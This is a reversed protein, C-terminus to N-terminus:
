TARLFTREDPKQRSTERASFEFRDPSRGKRRAVRDRSKAQHLARLVDAFDNELEVRFPGRLNRRLKPWVPVSGIQDRAPQAAETQRGRAPQDFAAGPM